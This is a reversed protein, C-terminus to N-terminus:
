GKENHEARKGERERAIRYQVSMGGKTSCYAQVYEGKEETTAEKVQTQTGYIRMEVVKTGNKESHCCVKGLTLQEECRKKRIKGEEENKDDKKLKQRIQVQCKGKTEEVQM